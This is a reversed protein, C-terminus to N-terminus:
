RMFTSRLGKRRRRPNMGNIDGTLDLFELGTLFEYIRPSEPVYGIMRKVEVPHVEVNVGFVDVFGSDPKVLGLVMKLTNSKGSGNPGLLGFVEGPSVKLNLYDVAVINAYRKAVGTLKLAPESSRAVYSAKL